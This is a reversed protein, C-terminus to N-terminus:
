FHNKERQSDTANGYFIRKGKMRFILIICRKKEM